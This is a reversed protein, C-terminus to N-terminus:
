PQGQEGPRNQQRAGSGEQESNESRPEPSQNGRSGIVVEVRRNLQRGANTENSAVPFQEGHGQVEIRDRSVGASVLEQQVAQARARALERNFDEDGVADTYGEVLVKRDANEELFRALQEVARAGGPKLQSDGFDFLVENMTLVMGRETQQAQLSKVTDRLEQLERNEQERQNRAAEAEQQATQADQQATQYRQELQQAREQATQAELEAQAARQRATLLERERAQRLVQERTQSVRRMEDRTDGLEARAIATAAQQKALYAHHEVDEIRDNGHEEWIGEAQALSEEAQQLKLAAYRSVGRMERAREITEQAEAYTANTEPLNACGTLLALSTLAGIGFGRLNSYNPTNM